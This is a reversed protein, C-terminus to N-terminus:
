GRAAHPQTAAALDQLSIRGSQVADRYFSRPMLMRAGTQRALTRAAEDFPTDAFGLFPNVAVFSALPWVPAIRQCAEAIAAALAADLSGQDPAADLPQASELASLDLALTM